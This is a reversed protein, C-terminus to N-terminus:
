RHHLSDPISFRLIRRTSIWSVGVALVIGIVFAQVIAAPHWAARV